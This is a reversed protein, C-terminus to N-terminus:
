NATLFDRIHRMQVDRIADTEQYIEHEAQDFRILRCNPNLSCFEKNKDNLVLKDQGAEFFLIHNRYRKRSNWIRKTAKLGEAVWANTPGGVRIEPLQNELDVQIKFRAESTTVDNGEFEPDLDIPGKGPAYHKGKGWFRDWGLKVGAMWQKNNWKAGLNMRTMPATVISRRVKNNPYSLLYHLHIAGGMSHGLMDYEDYDKLFTNTFKRLDRIYFLFDDVHGPDRLELKEVDTMKRYADPDEDRYDIEIDRESFGQGRHDLIYIDYGLDRLDYAIEIYKTCPESRGPLIVLAKKGEPRAPILANLILKQDHSAFSKSKFYTNAYPVVKTAYDNAFNAEPIAYAALGFILFLISVLVNL